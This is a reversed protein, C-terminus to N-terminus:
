TLKHNSTTANAALPAPDWYSPEVGGGRGSAAYDARGAVRARSARLRLPGRGVWAVGPAQRTFPAARAVPSARRFLRARAVAGVTRLGVRGVTRVARDDSGGGAELEVAGIVTLRGAFVARGAGFPSRLGWSKARYSRKDPAIREIGTWHRCDGARQLPASVSQVRGTMPQRTRQGRGPVIAGLARSPIGVAITHDMRGVM